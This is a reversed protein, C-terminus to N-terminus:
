SGGRELFACVADYDSRYLKAITCRGKGTDHTYPYHEALYAHLNAANVHGANAIAMARRVQADSVIRRDPDGGTSRERPMRSTEEPSGASRTARGEEPFPPDDLRRWWRDPGQRSEVNVLVARTTRFQHQFRKDWCESGIGLDKCCRMLGNSKCAELATAWTMRKNDPQYDCEGYAIAVAQERVLLLWPQVVTRGQVTPNACPRLGWGGPGFIANLRRRIFVTPPYVEGTPLIGLEDDAMPAALAAGEEKTLQSRGFGIAPLSLSDVLPGAILEPTVRVPLASEETFPSRTVIEVRAPAPRPAARRAPRTPPHKKRTAM